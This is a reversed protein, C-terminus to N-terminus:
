AITQCGTSGCLAPCTVTRAPALGGAVDNLDGDALERPQDSSEASGTKKIDLDLEDSKIKDDPGAM